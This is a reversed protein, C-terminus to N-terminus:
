QIVDAEISLAMWRLDPNSDGSKMCATTLGASLSMVVFLAFVPLLYLLRRGNRKTLGSKLTNKM